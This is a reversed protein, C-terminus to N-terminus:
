TTLSRAEPCGDASVGLYRAVTEVDVLTTPLAGPPDGPRPRGSRKLEDILRATAALPHESMATGRTHARTPEDPADPM